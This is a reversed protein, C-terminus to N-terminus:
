VIEDFQARATHEDVVDDVSDRDFGDVASLAARLTAVQDPKLDGADQAQFVVALAQNMADRALDFAAADGARWVSKAGVM